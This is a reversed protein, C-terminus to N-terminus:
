CSGPASGAASRCRPPSASGTSATTSAWTVGEGAPDPRRRARLAAVAHPLRARDHDGFPGAQRARPTSTSGSTTARHRRRLPQDAGPHDGALRQLRAHTGIAARLADVSEYIKMGAGYEGPAISNPTRVTRHDGHLPDRGYHRCWYQRHRGLTLVPEARSPRVRRRSAASSRAAAQASGAPPRRVAPSRGPARRAPRRPSRASRVARRRDLSAGGRGPRAPDRPPSGAGAAPSPHPRAPPGSRRGGASDRGLPSARRRGASRRRAPRAAGSRDRGGQELEVVQVQVEGVVLTPADGISESAAAPRTRRRYRPRRRAPRSSCWPRSRARDHGVRGPVADRHHGLDVHRPVGVRRERAIRLEVGVAHRRGAVGADLDAEAAERDARAAVSRNRSSTKPSSAASVGPGYRCM